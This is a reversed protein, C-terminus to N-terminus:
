DELRQFKQFAQGGDGRPGFGVQEDAMAHQGRAGPPAAAHDGVSASHGVGRVRRPARRRQGRSRVPHPFLGLRVGPGPRGEHVPGEGDVHQGTWVTPATQAQDGGEVIGGDDPLDERV